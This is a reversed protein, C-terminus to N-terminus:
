IIIQISQNYHTLRQLAARLANVPILTVHDTHGRLATFRREDAFVAQLRFAFTRQEVLLALLHKPTLQLVDDTLVWVRLDRLHEHHLLLHLVQERTQDLLHLVLVVVKLFPDAVETEIGLGETEDVHDVIM